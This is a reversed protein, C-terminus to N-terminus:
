IFPTASGKQLDAIVILVLQPTGSAFGTERCLTTCLHCHRLVVSCYGFEKRGAWFSRPQDRCYISFIFHSSQSGDLAFWIGCETHLTAKRRAGKLSAQRGQQKLFTCSFSRPLPLQHQCLPSFLSARVDVVCFYIGESPRWRGGSSGLNRCPWNQALFSSVGAAPYQEGDNESGEGKWRHFVFWLIQVKYEELATILSLHSLTHLASQLSYFARCIYPIIIFWSVSM